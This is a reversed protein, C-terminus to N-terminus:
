SRNLDIWRRMGLTELLRLGRERRSSPPPTLGCSVDLDGLGLYCHALLPKMGLEAALDAADTLMSGAAQSNEGSVSLITAHLWRAYAEEGRERYKRTQRLAETVHSTAKEPEGALLSAEALATLAFARTTRAEDSKDLAVAERLLQLGDRIQGSRAKACGLAAMIRSLYADLDHAKCLRLLHDFIGVAELANGRLLMVMGNGWHSWMVADPQNSANARQVAEAAQAEAEDFDGVEALAVALQGRVRAAPLVRLILFDDLPGDDMGNAAERYAAITAPYAGLLRTARAIYYYTGLELRRDGIERAIELARAGTTLAEEYRGLLVLCNATFSVVRGLRSRDNLETALTEAVELHQLTRRVQGLPTVAHRLDIRLDLAVSTRDPKPLHEAAILANELHEIAVRNASRAIARTAATQLHKVAKDWVEARFAHFALWEAKESLSDTNFEEGAALAAKHLNRRRVPSLMRYAADHLLAHKFTYEIAPFPSTEYLFELAQLRELSQRVEDPQFEGLAELVRLDAPNGVVAASQLVRKDMESLRDIRSTLLADITVPASFDSVPKAIRYAGSRGALVGTEVLSQVSEELFLPNCGTKAIVLQKLPGLAAGTGVLSDLIEGAATPGLTDIRVQTYYSKNSWGHQYEPRYSVLLMCRAASLGDVLGDILAQSGPDISHLDELVLLLPQTVSEVFLLRKVAELMHQRNAPSPATATRAADIVPDLLILLPALLPMLSVDVEALKRTVRERIADPTDSAAIQFYHRLLESVALYSTSMGFSEASAELVTLGHNAGSHIFEHILRSKGTGPEGVIAVVQGRGAKARDLAQRLLKMEVDRGAFPTLDRSPTARLRSRRPIAGLLEHTEVPETIGKLHLSGLPRVAVYGEVLRLTRATMYISGPAAIQEMRAALHTTLGMATYNMHLDSGISRVIVEGSNLGVRIELPVGETRLVEDAHAKIIEQMRLAAHCARIAHDELALPAGFLAMIGDGMVQNVTGEYRYVAEMMRELVPDLLRRAHDPDLNAVHETSGKLDAFLISLQKREGELAAKSLLIKEAIHGPTRVASGMVPPWSSPTSVSVGCGDCFLSGAELKTGCATCSPYLTTGCARCFRAEDRNDRYCQDCRM